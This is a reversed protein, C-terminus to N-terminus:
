PYAPYDEDWFWLERPDNLNLLWVQGENNKAGGLMM